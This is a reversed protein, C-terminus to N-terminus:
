PRDDERCASELATPPARAGEAEMGEIRREFCRGARAPRAKPALAFVREELIAKVIPWEAEDRYARVLAAMVEIPSGPRAEGLWDPPDDCIAHKETDQEAYTHFEVIADTGDYSPCGNAQVRTTARQVHSASYSDQVLHLFTGFAVLRLNGRGSTFVDHITWLKKEPAGFLDGLWQATAPDLTLPNSRLEHVKVRSGIEGLAIRYAFESWRLIKERTEEAPETARPAMAHLFQMDGFHSRLTPITQERRSLTELALRDLRLMSTWCDFEERQKMNREFCGGLLPGLRIAPPNDNWRVGTM